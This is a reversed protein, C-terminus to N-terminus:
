GGEDVLGEAGNRITIVAGHGAEGAAAALGPASDGGVEVHETPEAAEGAEEAHVTGDVGSVISGELSGLFIRRLFEVGDEDGVAFSFVRVARAVDGVLHLFVAERDREVHGRAGSVFPQGPAARETFKGREEELADSRIAGFM